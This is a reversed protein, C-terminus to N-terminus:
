RPPDRDRQYRSSEIGEGSEVIVFECKLLLYGVFREIGEGSEVKKWEEIVVNEGQSEIGEGSEVSCASGGCAQPPYYSEIGEGSEM